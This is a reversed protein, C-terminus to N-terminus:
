EKNSGVTSIAGELVSAIPNPWMAINVAFTHTMSFSIEETAGGFRGTGGTVTYTGVTEILEPYIAHGTMDMFLQDGNAATMTFSGAATGFRVDVVFNGTLTYHGVHTATGESTSSQYSFPFAFSTAQPGEGVEVGEFQVGDGALAPRALALLTLASLVLSFKLHNSKSSIFKM